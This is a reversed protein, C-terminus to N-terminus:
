SCCPSRPSNRPPMLCAPGTGVMEELFSISQLLATQAGPLVMAHPHCHDLNGPAAGPQPIQNGVAPGAPFPSVEVRGGQSPTAEAAVSLLHSHRTHSSLCIPTPSALLPSLPFALATHSAPLAPCSKSFFGSGHASGPLLLGSDAAVAPGPGTPRLALPTAQLLVWRWALRLAEQALQKEQIRCPM